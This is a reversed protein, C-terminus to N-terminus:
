AASSRTAATRCRGSWGRRTAHSARRAPDILVGYHSDLEAYSRNILPDYLDAREVGTQLNDPVLRAPLGGFFAFAEIHCETWVAQDMSLVPRLFLHRSCALVM